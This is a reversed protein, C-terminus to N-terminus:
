QVGYQFSTSATLRGTGPYTPTGGAFDESNGPYPASAIPSFGPNLALLAVEVADLTVNCAMPCAVSVWKGLLPMGAYLQYHITAVVGAWATGVDGQFAATLHLGRPPWPLSPDSGRTGPTRNFPADLPAQAFGTFSFPSSPDALLAGPADLGTRNLFPCANVSRGLGPSAVVGGLPARAAPLRASYVQFGAFPATTPALPNACARLVCDPAGSYAWNVTTCSPTAWCSAECDALTGSANGEGVNPCDGGTAAADTAILIFPPPSSPRSACGACTLLAEPGLARLLSEGSPQDLLSQFDYLAFFPATVFTLSILSNTLTTLSLANQTSNILTVPSPSADLMWDMIASTPPPAAALLILLLAPPAM